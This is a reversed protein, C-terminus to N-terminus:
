AVEQLMRYYLRQSLRAAARREHQWSRIWGVTTARAEPMQKELFCLLWHVGEAMTEEQAETLDRMLDEGFDMRRGFYFCISEAGFCSGRLQAYFTGQELSEVLPAALAPAKDLVAFLSRRIDREYEPSMEDSGPGLWTGHQESWYLHRHQSLATEVSIM